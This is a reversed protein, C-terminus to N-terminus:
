IGIGLRRVDEYKGCAWVPNGNPDTAGNQACYTVMGSTIMYQANVAQMVLCTYVTGAKPEKREDVLYCAHVPDNPTMGAILGFNSHPDNEAHAVSISIVVVTGIVIAYRVAQPIMSWATKLIDGVLSLELWVRKLFKM